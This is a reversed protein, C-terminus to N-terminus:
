FSTPTTQKKLMFVVIAGGVGVILIIVMVMIIIQNKVANNPMQDFTVPKTQSLSLSKNSSVRMNSDGPSSSSSVSSTANQAVNSPAPTPVPTLKQAYLNIKEKQITPLNQAIFRSTSVATIIGSENKYKLEYPNSPLKNSTINFRGNADAKVETLPNKDGIGYIGVSAHPIPTNSEDFAYGEVYTFIPDFSYSSLITSAHVETKNLIWSLASYIRDLFSLSRTLDVAEVDVIAYSEGKNIDCHLPQFILKFAGNKDAQVSTNLSGKTGDINKCYAKIKAFPHSVHGDIITNEGSATQFLGLLKAPFKQTSSQDLPILPIDKHVMKGKQVIDDGFYLDSYINPYNPHIKSNQTAATYGPVATELKYTGDPVIFSFYGDEKVPYPNIIFRGAVDTYNVLRYTENVKTALSVTANPIPELTQADFVRGYPDWAIKVCDKNVSNFDFELIGQQQGGQGAIDPTPDAKPFRNYALLKRDFGGNTFSVLAFKGLVFNGDKDTKVMKRSSEPEILTVFDTKYYGIFRYYLTPFLSNLMTLRDNNWIYMDANSDGTTCIEKPVENNYRKKAEESVQLNSPIQICEVVYADSNPLPNEKKVGKTAVMGSHTYKQYSSGDYKSNDVAPIPPITKDASPYSLNLCTWRENYADAAFSSQAFLLFTLLFLVLIFVKKM